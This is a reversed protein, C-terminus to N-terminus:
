GLTAFVDKFLDVDRTNNKISKGQMRRGGSTNRIKNFLDKKADTSAKKQMKELFKDKNMTFYASEIMNMHYDKNYDKQYQTQGDATPKFMYEMLKSKEKKSIPINRIDNINEISDRVDTLFKQQQREQQARTQEQQKLLAKAQDERLEKLEELAETAEDELLGVDEYKDILKEIRKPTFGKTKLYEAIVTKQNSEKELNITDLNIEGYKTEFYSRLDGGNNVFDHLDSMEDSPYAPKSMDEAVGEIFEILGEISNPKDDDEYDAFIESLKSDKIMYDVFASEQENVEEGSKDDSSGGINDIVDGDDDNNDDIDNDDIDEDIDEENIEEKINKTRKDIIGTEDKDEVQKDLDTVEVDSENNKIDDAGEIVDTTKMFEHNFMSMDIEDMFNGASPIEKFKSM